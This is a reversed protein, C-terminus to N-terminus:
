IEILKNVIFPTSLALISAYKSKILLLTLFKSFFYLSSPFISVILTAKSISSPKNFAIVFLFYGPFYKWYTSLLDQVFTTKGYRRKGIVIGFADLSIKTIDFWSLDMLKSQEEANEETMDNLVVEDKIPNIGEKVDGPKPPHVFASRGKAFRQSKPIKRQQAEKKNELPRKQPKKELVNTIVSLLLWFLM